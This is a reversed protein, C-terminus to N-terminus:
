GSSFDRHGFYHLVYKLKKAKGPGFGPLAAVRKSVTEFDVGDDWIRQAKGGYDKSVAQAVKLTYEAMKNTFRHVAPQKAFTKRLVELDMRAIETLDLHGLRGHLREPGTFAFEALVRQDYLLGLLVAEPSNRLFDDSDPEGTLSGERVFREIMRVFGGDIDVPELYTVASTKKKKAM